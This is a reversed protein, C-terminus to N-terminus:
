VFNQFFENQFSSKIFTWITDFELIYKSITKGKIKKYKRANKEM